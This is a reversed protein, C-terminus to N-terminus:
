QSMRNIGSLVQFCTEITPVAIGQRQAQDVVFGFTEHVEIAKGKDVDQLMSQRFTPASVSQERGREQTMAVADDESAATIKELFFPPGARLTVGLSEALQAAERVIRVVIRATDPDATFKWTEQRTLVAVASLGMWGVFKTWEDARIDESVAAPLGAENYRGVIDQVRDSSGGAWEGIITPNDMVYNASGDPQIAGGMLSICGLVADKGFVNALQENKIVGNQISIANGVKMHKVGALATETQHTKVALILVDTATLTGADTVINVPVTFEDLGTVTVGNDALHAAREGRAILSVAEGARALYAATVTGLAGAGLVVFKM